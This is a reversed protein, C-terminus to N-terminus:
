AERRYGSPVGIGWRSPGEKGPPAILEFIYFRRALSEEGNQTKQSKKEKEFKQPRRPRIGTAPFNTFIVFHGTEARRPLLGHFFPGRGAQTALKGGRKREL